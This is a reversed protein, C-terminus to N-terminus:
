GLAGLAAGPAVSHPGFRTRIQDLTPGLAPSTRPHFLDMQTHLATTRTCELALHRVRVRRINVQALLARATKFLPGEENSAVPLRRRGARILGDSHTLTLGLVAARLERRRLQAAMPIIQAHLAAELAPTGNTDTSLTHDKGITPRREGPPRVPARDRGRVWDHLRAAKQDLPVALQARSLERVQSITTLNFDALTSLEERTLGPLLALPLPALFDAEEGAGVIYEGVPKVMRSAVKAILKNTALSWIPTLGMSKELEKRLRFAVDVPPGFLRGTGTVDLFLHGDVRGPEILPTFRLSRKFIDVMVKKYRHYQPPLLALGPVTRRARALPMGKRIGEQFAIENMDYVVARPAGLPAIALPRTKLGPAALTELSAAFDAINLHIVARDRGHVSPTAPAGPFAHPTAM